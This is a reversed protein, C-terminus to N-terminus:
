TEVIIVKKKKHIVYYTSGMRNTQVNSNHNRVPELRQSQKKARMKQNKIFLDQCDDGEHKGFSIMNRKSLM